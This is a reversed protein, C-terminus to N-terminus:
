AAYLASEIGRFSTANGCAFFRGARNACFEVWEDTGEGTPKLKRAGSNRDLQRRVITSPVDMGFVVM